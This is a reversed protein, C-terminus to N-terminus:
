GILFLIFILPRALKSIVREEMEVHFRRELSLMWRKFFLSLIKGALVSVCVVFVAMLLNYIYSERWLRIELIKVITEM